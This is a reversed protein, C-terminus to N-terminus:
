SLKFLKGRPDNYASPAFCTEFAQLFRLCSQIQGNRYMWQYWALSTDDMYFSAVIIREDKPTNHYYFFSPFKSFGGYPILEMSGPFIWHSFFGYRHPPIQVLLPTTPVTLLLYRNTRRLLSEFPCKIWKVPLQPSLNSWNKSFSMSSKLKHPKPVPVM